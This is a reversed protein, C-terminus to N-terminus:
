PSCNELIATAALQCELPEGDPRRVACSSLRLWAAGSVLAVAEASCDAEIRDQEATVLVLGVVNPAAESMVGKVVFRPMDDHAVHVEIEFVGPTEYPAHVRCDVLADPGDVLREGEGTLLESREFSRPLLSSYEFPCAGADGGGLEVSTVAQAAGVLAYAPLQPESRQTRRSPILPVQVDKVDGCAMVAVGLILACRAPQLGGRIV